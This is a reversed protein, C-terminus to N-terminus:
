SAMSARPEAARALAPCRQPSRTPTSAPRPRTTTSTSRSCCRIADGPRDEGALRDLREALGVSDVTQIASSCDGDGPAGQEVPAPRCTGPRAPRRAPRKDEAEQVRNEGLTTLGAAVAARLRAADVTKSVAVLRVEAPDRSARACARAIRTDLDAARGVDLAPPDRRSGTPRGGARHERSAACSARSRSTTRTTASRHPAPASDGVSRPASVLAAISTTARGASRTPSRSASASSSRSSTGSTRSAPDVRRQGDVGTAERQADPPQKGGDFGTAIVTITVEDGLREDFVTGFIINAEPDAAASIEEAAEDVEFLSLSPWGTINFLIGQAGAINVELLPSAIAERAAEVARNEGSARGIGMLASGADKMIARVDAFDLNILGPVTILDSIGQVGQRLM